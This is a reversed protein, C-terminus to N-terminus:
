NYFGLNAPQFNTGVLEPTSPFRGDEVTWPVLAWEHPLPLLPLEEPLLCLAGKAEM